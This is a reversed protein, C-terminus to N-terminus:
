VICYNFVLLPAPCTDNTLDFSSLLGRDGNVTSFASVELLGQGYTPPAMVTILQPSLSWLCTQQKSVSLVFVLECRAETKTQNVVSVFTQKKRGSKQKRLCTKEAGNRDTFESELMPM